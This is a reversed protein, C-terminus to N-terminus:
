YEYTIKINKTIVYIENTSLITDLEKDEKFYQEWVKALGEDLDEVDEYGLESLTMYFASPISVQYDSDTSTIDGVKFSYEEKNLYKM